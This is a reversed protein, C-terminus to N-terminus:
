QHLRCHRFCADHRGYIRSRVRFRGTVISRAPSTRPRSSADLTRRPVCAADISSLPDTLELRGAAGQARQRRARSRGRDHQQLEGRAPGLHPVQRQRHGDPNGPDWLAAADRHIQPGHVRGRVFRLDQRVRDPRRRAARLVRRASGQSRHTKRHEHIEEFLARHTTATVGLLQSAYYARAHAAWNERFVAPLRRIEVYEPKIQDFVELSPLFRYCHICGYWFVDVVEIRDGTETLQPPQLVEYKGEIDFGTSQAAAHSAAAVWVIAVLCCLWRNM